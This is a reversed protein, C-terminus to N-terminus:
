KINYVFVFKRVEVEDPLGNLFVESINNHSLNILKASQLKLGALNPMKKLRNNSFDLGLKFPKGPDKIDSPLQTLNKNSCNITFAKDEPRLICNCEQPCPINFGKTTCKLTKSQLDTVNIDKLWEPSHCSLNDPIIHFFNQVSSHMRGEIYRLFDYLFCDCIIPNNNVRIIVDRPIVQSNSILEAEQLLIHEIKNHSLDLKLNNSM